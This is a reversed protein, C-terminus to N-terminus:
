GGAAKVPKTVANPKTIFLPSALTELKTKTVSSIQNDLAKILDDLTLIDSRSAVAAITELKSEGTGSTRLKSVIADVVDPKM